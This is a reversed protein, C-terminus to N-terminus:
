RCRERWIEQVFPDAADHLGRAARGLVHAGLPAQAVVDFRGVAVQEEDLLLAPGIPCEEEVFYRALVNTHLGIM